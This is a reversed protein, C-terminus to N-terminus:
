NTERRFLFEGNKVSLSAAIEEAKIDVSRLGGIAELATKLSPPFDDDDEELAERIKRILKFVKVTKRIEQRADEDLGMAAPRVLTSFALKSAGFLASPLSSLNAAMDVLPRPAVAELRVTAKIEDLPVCENLVDAFSHAIDVGLVVNAGGVVDALPVPVADSLSLIGDLPIVISALRGGKPDDAMTVTLPSDSRELMESIEAVAAAVAAEDAGERLMFTVVAATSSEAIAAPLTSLDSSLSLTLSCSADASTVAENLSVEITASTTEEAGGDAASSIAQAVAKRAATAYYQAVLGARVARAGVDTHSEIADSGLFAALEDIDISGSGDKDASDFLEKAKDTSMAVGLRALLMNFEKPSVLNDGNVDISNFLARVQEETISKAKTATSAASAM